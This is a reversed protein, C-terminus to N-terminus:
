TVYCRRRLNTEWSGVNRAKCIQKNNNNNYPLPFSPGVELSPFPFASSPPSPLSSLPPFPLPPSASPGSVATRTICRASAVLLLYDRLGILLCCTGVLLPLSASFGPLCTTPGIPFIKSSRIFFDNNLRTHNYLIKYCM